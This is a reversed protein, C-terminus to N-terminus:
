ILFTVQLSMNVPHLLACNRNIFLMYSAWIVRDLDRASAIKYPEATELSVAIASEGRLTGQQTAEVLLVEDSQCFAVQRQSFLLYICYM